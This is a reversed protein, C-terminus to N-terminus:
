HNDNQSWFAIHLQFDLDSYQLGMVWNKQVANTQEMHLTMHGHYYFSNTLIDFM